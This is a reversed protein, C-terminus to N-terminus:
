RFSTNWFHSIWGMSGLSSMDSFTQVKQKVLELHEHVVAHHALALLDLLHGLAHLLLPGDLLLHVLHDVLQLLDLQDDDGVLVGEHQLGHVLDRLLQVVDVVVQDEHLGRRVDLVDDLAGVVELLLQHAHLVRELAPHLRLAGPHVQLGDEGGVVDLLLHRELVLLELADVAGEALDHVV